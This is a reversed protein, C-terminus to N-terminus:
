DEDDEPEIMTPIMTAYTQKPEDIPAEADLQDLVRAISDEFGLMVTDVATRYDTSRGAYPAHNYRAKCEFAHWIEEMALRLDEDEIHKFERMVSAPINIVKDGSSLLPSTVADKMWAPWLKDGDSVSSMLKDVFLQNALASVTIGMGTTDYKKGDGGVFNSYSLYLLETMPLNDVIRFPCEYTFKESSVEAVAARSELLLHVNKSDYVLRM